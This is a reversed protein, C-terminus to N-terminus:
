TETKQLAILFHDSSVGIGPPLPPLTAAPGAAPRLRREVREFTGSSVLYLAMMALGKARSALTRESYPFRRVLRVACRGVGVREFWAPCVFTLHEAFQSYWFSGGALRTLLADSAGTTFVLHGGPRLLMLCDDLLRHPEPHHEIVDTAVIADFTRAIANLEFFSRGVIQVGRQGAIRRAEDGIEVGFRHYQPPLTALLGGAGCGIDLVDGKPLLAVLAERAVRHDIRGHNSDWPEAEGQAYHREYFTAPHIPDRFCLACDKCELLEGGPLPQELTRGAFVYAPPIAGRSRLRASGCCLCTLTDRTTMPDASLSLM